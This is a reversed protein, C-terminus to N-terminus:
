CSCNVPRAAGCHFCPRGPAYRLEDSVSLAMSRPPGVPATHTVRDVVRTGTPRSLPSPRKALRLRNARGIVANRSRTGLRKSIALASLGEDWLERLMADDDASWDAPPRAM